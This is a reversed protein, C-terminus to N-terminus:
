SVDLNLSSLDVCGSINWVSEKCVFAAVLKAIAYCIALVFLFCILKMLITYRKVARLEHELGWQTRFGARQLDHIHCSTEANSAEIVKKAEAVKLQVHASFTFLEHVIIFRMSAQLLTILISTLAQVQIKKENMVARHIAFLTVQLNAQIANELVAQLGYRVVGRELEGRVGSLSRMLCGMQHTMNEENVEEDGHFAEMWIQQDKYRSFWPNLTQVSAMGASEGLICLANGLNMNMGFLNTFQLKCKRGDPLDVGVVYDPKEGCRPTSVLLPFVLQLFSMLFVVVVITSFRLHGVLPIFRLASHRMVIHFVETIRQGKCRETRLSVGTFFADTGFDFMNLLGLAIVWVFWWRFSVLCGLFRFSSTVQIYPITTFQLCKWELYFRVAVIPAFILWLWQPYVAYNDETCNSFPFSVASLFLMGVWAVIAGARALPVAPGVCLGMPVCKTQFEPRSSLAAVEESYVCKPLVTTFPHPEIMADSMTVYQSRQHKPRKRKDPYDAIEATSCGDEASDVSQGGVLESGPGVLLPCQTEIEVDDRTGSRVM